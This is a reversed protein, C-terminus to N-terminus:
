ESVVSPCVLIDVGGFHGRLGPRGITSLQVPASWLTRGWRNLHSHIRVGSGDRVGFEPLCSHGGWRHVVGVALGGGGGLVAREDRVGLQDAHEREDAAYKKPALAIQLANVVANRKGLRNRLSNPSPASEAANM